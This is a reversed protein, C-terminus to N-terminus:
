KEAADKIVAEQEPKYAERERKYAEKERQYTEYDKLYRRECNVREPGQACKQNLYMQTANYLDKSTCGSVLVLYGLMIALKGLRMHVRGENDRM